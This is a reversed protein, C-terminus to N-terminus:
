GVSLPVVLAVLLGAAIALAVIEVLSLEFRKIRALM